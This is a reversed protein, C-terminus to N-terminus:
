KFSIIQYGFNDISKKDWFNLNKTKLVITAEKEIERGTYTKENDDWERLLLIDGTNIEFDALRLEYKKTGDLILQFYEPLVKKEIKM